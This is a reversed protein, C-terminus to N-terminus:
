VGSGTLEYYIRLTQRSAIEEAIDLVTASWLTGTAGGKTNDTTLFMGRITTDISISFVVGRNNEIIQSVTANPQWAPRAIEDYNEDESWGAHSSMTDATTVEAAAGGILGIRWASAPDGNRFHEDFLNNIAALMIDNDSMQKAILIGGATYREFAWRGAFSVQNMINDELVSTRAAM